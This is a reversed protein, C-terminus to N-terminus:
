KESHVICNEIYQLIIGLTILITIDHIIEMITNTLKYYVVSTTEILLIEDTNSNKSTYHNPTVMMILSRM